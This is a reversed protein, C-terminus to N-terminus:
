RSSCVHKHLPWDARQHETGCYAVVKCRSCKKTGDVRGCVACPVLEMVGAQGPGGAAVPADRQIMEVTNQMAQRLEAECGASGCVATVWVNVFPDIIDHLWSMPTMITKVTARDCNECQPSSAARCAAEHQQVLPQITQTFLRIYSPDRQTAEVDHRFLVSPIRHEYELKTDGGDCQFDFRVNRTAM